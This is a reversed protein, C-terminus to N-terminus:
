ALIIKKAGAPLFETHCHNCHLKVNARSIIGETAHFWNDCGACQVWSTNGRKEGAPSHDHLRITNDTSV